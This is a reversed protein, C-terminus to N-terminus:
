RSKISRLSLSTMDSEGPLDQGTAASGFLELRRVHYRRCLAGVEARRQRLLSTMPFDGEGLSLRSEFQDIKATGSPLVLNENGM